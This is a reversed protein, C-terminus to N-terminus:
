KLGLFFGADTSNGLQHRATRKVSEPRWFRFPGYFFGFDVATIGIGAVSEAPM